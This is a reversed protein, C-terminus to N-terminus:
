LPLLSEYVQVRRDIVKTIQDQWSSGAQMPFPEDMVASAQAQADEILSRHLSDMDTFHRFLTRTTIGAM